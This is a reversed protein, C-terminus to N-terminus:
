PSAPGQGELRDAAQLLGPEGFPRATFRAAPYARTTHADVWVPGLANPMAGTTALTVSGLRLPGSVGREPFMLGYFPLEIWHRGPALEVASQAWGVPEGQLTHLTGQLHFRGQREVEVQALVVLNGDQVRDRFRGTLRAWPNSYLFGSAAQRPESGPVTAVVEVLFTEALEPVADEPLVFPASYVGDGAREDPAVGDDAYTVSGVAGGAATRVEGSVVVGAAAAGALGDLRAHLVVTEPAVFSVEAAWVSLRVAAGDPAALSHPAPTREARVPDPRGAAVPHSWAPYRAAARYDGAAARALTSPADGPAGDLPQAAAAAAALALALVVPLALVLTPHRRIRDSMTPDRRDKGM